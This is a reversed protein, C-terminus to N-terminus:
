LIDNAMTNDLLDLDRETVTKKSKVLMLLRELLNKYGLRLHYRGDASVFGLKAKLSTLEVIDFSFIQILEDISTSFVSPIDRIAQVQFLEHLDPGVTDHLFEYFREDSLSMMEVTLQNIQFIDM